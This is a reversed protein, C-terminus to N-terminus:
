LLQSQLNKEFNQTLIQFLALFIVFYLINAIARGRSKFLIKLEHFFIIKFVEMKEVMSIMSDLFIM